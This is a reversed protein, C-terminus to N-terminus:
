CRITATSPFYIRRVIKRTWDHIGELPDCVREPRVFITVAIWLILPHNFGEFYARDVNPVEPLSLDYFFGGKM